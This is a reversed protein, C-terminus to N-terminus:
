RPLFRRRYQLGFDTIVPNRTRRQVSALSFWVSVMPPVLDSARRVERMAEFKGPVTPTAADFILFRGFPNFVRQQHELYSEAM